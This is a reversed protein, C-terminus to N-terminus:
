WNEGARPPETEEKELDKLVEEHYKLECLYGPADIELLLSEFDEQTDAKGRGYNYKPKM